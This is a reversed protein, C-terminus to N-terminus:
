QFEPPVPAVTGTFAPPETQVARFKVEIDKKNETRSAHVQDLVRGNVILLVKYDNQDNELFPVVLRFDGNRSPVDAARTAYVFTADSTGQALGHIRVTEVRVYDSLKNISVIPYILPVFGLAFLALAPYNSTFKGLPTEVSIPQKSEQDLYIKERWLLWMGGVVMVFGALAVFYYLVIREMSPFDLRRDAQHGAFANPWYM